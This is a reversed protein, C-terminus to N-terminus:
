PEDLVFAGQDPCATRMNVNIALEVGRQKDFQLVAESKKENFDLSRVTYGLTTSGNEGGKGNPSSPVMPVACTRVRAVGGKLDVTVLNVYNDYDSALFFVTRKGDLWKLMRVSSDAGAPYDAWTTGTWDSEPFLPIGVGEPPLTGSGKDIRNEDPDSTMDYLLVITKPEGPSSMKPYWSRYLFFRNDPSVHMDYGFIVDMLTGQLLDVVNAIDGGNPLTGKVVLKQRYLHLSSVAKTHNKLTFRKPQISLANSIKFQFSMGGICEADQCKAQKVLEVRWVGYEAALRGAFAEVSAGLMITVVLSVQIARKLVQM